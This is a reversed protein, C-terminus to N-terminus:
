KIIFAIMISIVIIGLVIVIKSLLLYINSGQCWKYLEPDLEEMTRKGERWRKAFEKPTVPPPPCIYGM